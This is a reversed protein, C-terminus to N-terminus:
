WYNCFQVLNPSVSQFIKSSVQIDKLMDSTRGLITKTDIDYAKNDNRLIIIFPFVLILITGFITLYKQGKVVSLISIIM